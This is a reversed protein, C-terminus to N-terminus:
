VRVMTSLGASDNHINFGMKTKKADIIMRFSHKVNHALCYPSCLFNLNGSFSITM